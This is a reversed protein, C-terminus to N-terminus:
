QVVAPSMMSESQQLHAQVKARKLLSLRQDFRMKSTSQILVAIHQPALANIFKDEQEHTLPDVDWIAHIQSQSTSFLGADADGLHEAFVGYLTYESFHPERALVVRWDTGAVEEIRQVMRRVVSRRWVVCTGIYDSQSISQSDVNLLRCAVKRWLSHTAPLEAHPDRYFRVAGNENVLVERTLSRILCIDSDLHLVIETPSDAAAAIKMIQQAIWGRIPRGRLNFYINRRLFPLLRRVQPGPMPAKLLWFPLLSDESKITRDSTALSAFLDQDRTPVYLLHKLGQPAFVDLSECLLRFYKYDGSYSLTLISRDLQEALCDLKSNM